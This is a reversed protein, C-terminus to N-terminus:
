CSKKKGYSPHNILSIFVGHIFELLTLGRDLYQVPGDKNQGIVTEASPKLKGCNPSSPLLGAFEEQWSGATLEGDPPRSWRQWSEPKGSSRSGFSGLKSSAPKEFLRAPSKSSPTRGLDGSVSVHLRQRWAEKRLEADQQSNLAPIWSSSHPQQQNLAFATSGWHLILRNKQVQPFCSTAALRLLPSRLYSLVAFYYYFFFFFCSFLSM